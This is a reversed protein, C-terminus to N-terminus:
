VVSKRDRDHIRFQVASEPDVAGEVLPLQGVERLPLHHILAGVDAAHFGGVYTGQDMMKWESAPCSLDSSCVDSSWDRYCRTHRRRSSFFFFVVISVTYVLPTM